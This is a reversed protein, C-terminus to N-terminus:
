VKSREQGGVQRGLKEEGDQGHSGLISEFCHSPMRQPIGGLGHGLLLDSTSVTMFYVAQEGRRSRVTGMGSSWRWTGAESMGEGRNVLVSRHGLVGVPLWLLYEAVM